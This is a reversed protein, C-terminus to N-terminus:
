SNKSALEAVARIVCDIEEARNFYGPSLRCAGTEYTGITQHALPACHLGSRSIIGHYYELWTSVEGCDMGKINFSLVATKRKIDAPGYLEVQPIAKLGDWLTKCLQQEDQNIREIGEQKIYKVGALLGALGPTNHTGSELLDPMFSPHELTESLSGTGGQKLPKIALGPRLYIGGTGQPGLLGKHGTFALVDIGQKEVDIPIVGATQAADLVLWLEHERAIQGLEEIPMITGTLNSAHMICIMRSNPRIAKRLEDPDMSGDGACPVMTWEIGYTQQMAYLPRAVANHEMSSSIVHDGPKLLGKLAVNIAETINFTFAINASDVINFLDALADRCDMLISGAQLTARNSGRGPNGGLNRNFFDVAQYVVEPKPYTTAANDMYISPM